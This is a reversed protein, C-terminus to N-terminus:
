KFAAILENKQKELKKNETQLQDMRKRDANNMVASSERSSKSATKHKEVEELARNLRLDLTNKNALAQKKERKLGEVDKKVTSLESELQSNKSRLEEQASKQKEIQHQLQDNKKGITMEAEDKERIVEELQSIVSVGM